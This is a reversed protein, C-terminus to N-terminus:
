HRKSLAKAESSFNMSPAWIINTLAKNEVALKQKQAELLENKRAALLWAVAVAVVVTLWVLDRISFRLMLLNSAKQPLGGVSAARLLRVSV